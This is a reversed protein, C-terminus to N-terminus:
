AARSRGGVGRRVYFDDVAALASNITAPSRKAVTQLYSRYDRVAWDRGDAAGLPDGDVEAGGLWVLYQRVKSAYTRRTQESLPASQLAAVYGALVEAFAEPLEIPARGRRGVRVDGANESASRRRESGPNQTNESGV